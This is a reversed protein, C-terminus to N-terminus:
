PGTFIGSRDVTEYWCRAMIEHGLVTPHVGDWIVTGPASKEVYPALASRFPVFVAGAAAAERRVTEACARVLEVRFLSEKAPNEKEQPPLFGFPECLILRCEPLANATRDLLESFERAFVAPADPDCGWCNNVGILLSLVTPRLDLADEKWRALLRGTNDGSVGRNVIFPSRPLNELLLRGALMFQHGHGLVHNFDSQNEGRNGHTISDGQFLLVDESKLYIM